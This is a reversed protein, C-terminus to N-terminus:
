NSNSLTSRLEEPLKTGKGINQQRLSALKKKKKENKYKNIQQENLHNKGNTM